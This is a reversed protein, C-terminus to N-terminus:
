GPSVLWVVLLPFKRSTAFGGDGGDGPAVLM